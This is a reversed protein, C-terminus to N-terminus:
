DSPSSVANILCHERAHWIKRETGVSVSSVGDLHLGAKGAKMEEVTASIELQGTTLATIGLEAERIEGPELAPHLPRQLMGSWAFCKSLDLALTHPQDRLCPQLRLLLHLKGQSRNHVKVMVKAFIGIPLNFPSLDSVQLSPSRNIAKRQDIRTTTFCIDVPDVRLADIMRASLRIGRRIEIVGHRGTGQENWSAKISKLLEERYWFSERSATEAEISVKSASLVFQRQAGITPIPAHSDAVYVRPVVLVTRSVHGPQLTETLGRNDSWDPSGLAHPIFDEPGHLSVDIPYPWVNRFDLLVLCQGNANTNCAQVIVEGTTAAKMQTDQDFCPLVNCRHIEISGNVTISIPIMIQRTYFKENVESQPRGLNAYDIQIRGDMLGPKGVVEFTFSQSQGPQLSPRDNTNHESIWRLAPRESLQLQLEYLELPNLTKSALAEQVQRTVSDDFTFLILDAAAKDSSNKLTVELRRTEGELLMLSSLSLSTHEVSIIPQARSVHTTLTNTFLDTSHEGAPTIKAQAESNPVPSPSSSSLQLPLNMRQKVVTPSFLPKPLILFDQEYCDKIRARCGIIKLTGESRPVGSLIFRQSCCHGLVINHSSPEFDCGEGLISISDVEVDFEFPNQLMVSFYATEDAVLIAEGSVDKQPKALPNYIFPDTPATKGSGTLLSLEQPTHSIMKEGSSAEMVEIGRVLFDDWYKARLTPIGLKNAAIVIRKVNNLLKVQEEQSIHPLDHKLNSSVTLSRKASTLLQITYQLGSELDPLAECVGACIRLIELKMLFDGSEQMESWKRVNLKIAALDPSKSSAQKVNTLMRPLGYAECVTDLISKLGPRVSSSADNMASGQQSLAAAPHIGLEAAGIKRAEVLGPTLKQLLTKFYFAQRRDLGLTSLRKSVAVLVDISSQSPFNGPLEEAADAFLNAIFNKRLSVAPSGVQAPSGPKLAVGTVLHDLAHKDLIGGRLCIVALLDALRIKLEALMLPPLQEQATSSVNTHLTVIADQLGPALKALSQHSAVSSETPTSGNVQSTLSAWRGGQSKDVSTYCIQPINFDLQAWAFMVMCVMLGELAHAHWATDVVHGRTSVAGESLDRLADPWRGAQLYLTGLLIQYRARSNDPLSDTSEAKKPSAFGFRSGSASRSNDNPSSEVNPEVGNPLSSTQKAEAPIRSLQPLANKTASYGNSTARRQVILHPSHIMVGKYDRALQDFVDLVSATISLIFTAVDGSQRAGVVSCWTLREDLLQTSSRDFVALYHVLPRQDQDVSQRFLTHLDDFTTNVDENGELTQRQGDDIAPSGDSLAIVVQPTRNLEFPFSDIWQGGVSTSYDLLVRGPVFVTPSFLGPRKAVQENAVIDGLSIVNFKRLRSVHEEFREPRIQSAPVLLVNVRAPSITSFLDFGM